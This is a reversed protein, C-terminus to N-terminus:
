NMSRLSQFSEKAKLYGPNGPKYYEEILEEIQLNLKQIKDLLINNLLILNDKDRELQRTYSDPIYKRIGFCDNMRKGKLFYIDYIRDDSDAEDYNIYYKDLEYMTNKFKNFEHISFGKPTLIIRTIKNELLYNLDSINLKIKKINPETIKIKGFIQHDTLSNDLEFIIKRGGYRTEYQHAM